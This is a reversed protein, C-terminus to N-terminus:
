WFVVLMGMVMGRSLLLWSLFLVAFLLGSSGVTNAGLCIDGVNTVMLVLVLVM